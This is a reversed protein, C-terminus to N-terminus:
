ESAEEASGSAAEEARDIAEGIAAFIAGNDMLRLRSSSSLKAIAALLQKWDAPMHAAIATRLRELERGDRLEHCMMTVAAVRDPDDWLRDDVILRRVLSPNSARATLATRLAGVLHREELEGRGTWYTRLAGAVEQSVTAAGDGLLTVTEMLATMV